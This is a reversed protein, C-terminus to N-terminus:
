MLGDLFIWNFNMFFSGDSSLEEGIMLVWSLDVRCAWGFFRYFHENLLAVAEYSSNEIMLKDKKMRKDVEIDSAIAFCLDQWGQWYDITDKEYMSRDWIDDM